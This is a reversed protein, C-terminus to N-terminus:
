VIRYGILNKEVGGRGSWVNKYRGDQLMLISYNMGKILNWRTLYGELVRM